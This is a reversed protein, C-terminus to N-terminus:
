IINPNLVEIIKALEETLKSYKAKLDLFKEQRDSEYDRLRFAINLLNEALNEHGRQKKAFQQLETYYGETRLKDMWLEFQAERGQSIAEYTVKLQAPLNTLIWQKRQSKGWQNQLYNTLITTIITLMGGIVVGILPSSFLKTWWSTKAQIELNEILQRETIEKETKKDRGAVQILLNFKGSKKGLFAFNVPTTQPLEVECALKKKTGHQCSINEKMDLQSRPFFVTVTAIDIKESDIWVKINMEEGEKLLKRDVFTQLPLLKTESRVSQTESNALVPVLPFAIAALWIFIVLLYKLNFILNVLKGNQKM